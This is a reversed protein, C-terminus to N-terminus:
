RQQRWIDDLRDEVPPLRRSQLQVPQHFPQRYPPSLLLCPKEASAFQERSCFDLLSPDHLM